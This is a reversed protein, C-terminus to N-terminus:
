EKNISIRIIKTRDASDIPKHKAARESGINSSLLASGEVRCRPLDHGYSETHVSVQVTVWYILLAVTEFHLGLVRIIVSCFMHRWDRFWILGEWLLIQLCSWKEGVWTFPPVAIRMDCHKRDVDFSCRVLNLVRDDGHKQRMNRLFVCWWREIIGSIGGLCVMETLANCSKRFGWVVRESEGTIGLPLVISWMRKLEGVRTRSLRFFM